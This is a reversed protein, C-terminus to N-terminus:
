PKQHKKTFLEDVPTKDFASVSLIQLIENLSHESDLKYKLIAALTEKVGKASAEKLIALKDQLTYKRKKAM